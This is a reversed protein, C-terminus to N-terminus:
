KTLDAYSPRYTGNEENWYEVCGHKIMHMTIAIDQFYRLTQAM